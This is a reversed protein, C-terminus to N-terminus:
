RCRTYPSEDKVDLPPPVLFSSCSSNTKIARQAETHPTLGSSLEAPTSTEAAGLESNESPPKPAAVDPAAIPALVSIRDNAPIRPQSAVTSISPNPSPHQMEHPNAQSRSGSSTEDRTIVSAVMNTIIVSTM